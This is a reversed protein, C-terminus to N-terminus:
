ASARGTRLLWENVADETIVWGGSRKTARLKKLWINLYVTQQTIDYKHAVARPTLTPQASRPKETTAAISQM